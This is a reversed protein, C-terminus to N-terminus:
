TYFRTQHNEQRARMYGISYISNVLWLGSAMAAFLMGLPEVKFAIEIGPLVEGIRIGPRAGALIEPLLSWTCAILAIATLLTMSERLNDNFRGALGIPLAGALPVALAALIATEVPDFWHLRLAGNGVTEVHRTRDHAVADQSGDPLRTARRDGDALALDELTEALAAGDAHRGAEFAGRDDGGQVAKPVVADDGVALPDEQQEGGSVEDGETLLM